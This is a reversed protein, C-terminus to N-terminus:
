SVTRRSPAPRPTLRLRRNAAQDHGSLPWRFRFTRTTRPLVRNPVSYCFLVCELGKPRDKFINADELDTVVHLSIPQYQRTASDARRVVLCYSTSTRHGQDALCGMVHVADCRAIQTSAGRTSLTFFLSLASKVGSAVGMAYVWQAPMCVHRQTQPLKKFGRM